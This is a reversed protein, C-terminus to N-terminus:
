GKQGKEIVEVVKWTTEKSLPRTEMIKVKDGVSAENKDDHAKLKKHWNIYKKYLPHKKRTELMVTITKDMKDSIVIGVFTKKRSASKNKM